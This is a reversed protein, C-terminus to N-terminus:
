MELRLIPSRVVPVDLVAISRAANARATALRVYRYAMLRDPEDFGLVGMSSDPNPPKTKVM